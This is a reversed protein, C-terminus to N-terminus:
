DQNAKGKKTLFDVEENGTIRAIESQHVSIAGTPLEIELMQNKPDYIKWKVIEGTKLHKVYKGFMPANNKM